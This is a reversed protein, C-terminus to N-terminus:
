QKLIKIRKIQGDYTFRLVHLGPSLSGVEVRNRQNSGGIADIRSILKGSLNYIGLQIPGLNSQVHFESSVVTPHVVIADEMLFSDRVSGQCDNSGSIQIENYPQLNEIQISHETIDDFTYTRSAGNIQVEYNPSGSVTYSVKNGHRDLKGRKAIVSAADNISIGYSQEFLIEPVSLTVWYSGLPLNDIRFVKDSDIEEFQDSIGNGEIAINFSHGSESLFVEISGDSGGPCSPTLAYVKIATQAIAECGNPNVRVGAQTNPCQDYDDSVGDMDKDEICASTKGADNIIWDHADLLQQRAQAAECYQNHPADLRAGNQLSPLQSWATLISEYHADSLGSSSFMDIMNRVQSINWEGLNQDFSEANLFLGTMDTANGVDWNTIDQDFSKAGSFMFSMDRITNTKWTSMATSGELSSCNQFMGSMSDVNSLDPIDTALVDMNTCGSFTGEMTEWDVDGWQDVSILKAADPNDKFAWGPFNGTIKITYTGPKQYTFSTSGSVGGYISGAGWDVDYYYHEGPLTKISITRNSSIGPNDTRWTTIFARPVGDLIKFNLLYPAGANGTLDSGSYPTAILTYTGASLNEGLYDSGDTGFLTFPA